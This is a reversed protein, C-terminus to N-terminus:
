AYRPEYRVYNDADLFQQCLALCCFASLLLLVRVDFMFYDTVVSQLHPSRFSSSHPSTVIHSFTVRSSMMKLPTSVVNPLCLFYAIQM